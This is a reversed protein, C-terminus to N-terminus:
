ARASRMARHRDLARDVLAGSAGLYGAPDLLDDLATGSLARAAEPAADLAEALPTGATDGGRTLNALFAKAAQKGMLPALVANVREAVIAGGTLALNARMRDPFVELGGALEAATAAAGATTRLIERLPQWEAHWGGAAREDEALLAQHLMLAHAPAQRAASVLLTALVPNRKQPMASSIGRGEAAPEALEGVETRSMLQVDLALKGLAGTVFASVAGIDALPTRLVHWPLGPEALGLEAAFAALLRPGHEEPAPVGALAAYEQYSALTGAAGGLQAPLGDHRLRGVRERADLVLGLWGAAKLGFTIPVAHQALTRGAMPTDRHRAALGALAEATAALDADVGALVRDALLMAASDLIDQSTCGRHVYEAAEPSLERVRATFLRVLEVVPNAAGRAAVALAALDIGPAKAAQAIPEVASEPVVGLHAQARALAVEAEIMAALWAEDGVLAAGRGGAWVPALLGTDRPPEQPSPANIGHADSTM